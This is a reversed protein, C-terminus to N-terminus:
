DLRVMLWGKEPGSILSKRRHDDLGKAYGSLYGKLFIAIPHETVDLGQLTAVLLDVQETYDLLHFPPKWDENWKLLHAKGAVEELPCIKGNRVDVVETPDPQTSFIIGYEAIALFFPGPAELIQIAPALCNVLDESQFPRGLRWNFYVAKPEM